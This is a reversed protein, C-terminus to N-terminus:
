YKGVMARRLAEYHGVERVGHLNEEYSTARPEYGLAAVLMGVAAVSGPLGGPHGGQTRDGPASRAELAAVMQQRIWKAAAELDPETMGLNQAAQYMFSPDGAKADLRAASRRRQNATLTAAAPYIAPRATDTAVM